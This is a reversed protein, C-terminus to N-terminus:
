VMETRKEPLSQENIQVSRNNVKEAVKRYLRDRINVLMCTVCHLVTVFTLGGACALLAAAPKKWDLIKYIYHLGQKDLGGSAYYIVSFVQYLMVISLCWWFNRFRFPISTVFLDIMMMVSNCVHMIINLPDLHHIKSDYVTLWYCMTVGFAINTTVVYLFWYLRETSEFRLNCPDFGSIRQLRWRKSVLVGGILAQSFGLTVDWNTLYIPWKDYMGLPQYSGFEFLSCVVFATWVFFVIWRYFLYWTAAHSQCKPETLLRAHPPEQRRQRWRRGIEQCWFKSVMARRCSSCQLLLSPLRKLSPLGGFALVM